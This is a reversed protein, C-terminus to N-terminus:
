RREDDVIRDVRLPCRDSRWAHGRTRVRWSSGDEAELVLSGTASAPRRPSAALKWVSPMWQDSTAGEFTAPVWADHRFWYVRGGEVLVLVSGVHHAHLLRSSYIAQATAFAKFREFGDPGRAFHGHLWQMFPDDDAHRRVWRALAEWDGQDMAARAEGILAKDNM